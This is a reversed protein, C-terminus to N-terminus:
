TVEGLLSIQVQEIHEYGHEYVALRAAEYDPEVSITYVRVRHRQSEGIAGARRGVFTASYMWKRMKYM